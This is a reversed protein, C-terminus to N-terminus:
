GSPTSVDEEIPMYDGLNGSLYKMTFETSVDEVTIGDTRGNYVSLLFDRENEVRATESDLYETLVEELEDIFTQLTSESV